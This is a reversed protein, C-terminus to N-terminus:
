KEKVKENDKEKQKEKENSDEDRKIDDKKEENSVKYILQSKEIFAFEAEAASEAAGIIAPLSTESINLNSISTELLPLM